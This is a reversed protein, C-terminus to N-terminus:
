FGTLIMVKEVSEQMNQMTPMEMRQLIEGESGVVWVTPVKPNKLSDLFNRSAFENLFLPKNKKRWAIISEITDNSFLGIVGVNRLSFQKYNKNLIDTIESSRPNWSALVVIYWFRMKSLNVEAEGEVTPEKGYTISPFEVHRPLPPIYLPVAPAAPAAPTAGHPDEKKKEEAARANCIGLLDSIISFLLIISLYFRIGSHNKQSNM